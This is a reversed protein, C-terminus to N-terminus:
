GAVMALGVGGSGNDFLALKMDWPTEPAEPLNLVHRNYFEQWEPTGAKLYTYETGDDYQGARDEMDDEFLYDGGETVYLDLGANQDQNSM